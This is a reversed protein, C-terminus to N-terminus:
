LSMSRLMDEQGQSMNKGAVRVCLILDSSEVREDVSMNALHATGTKGAAAEFNSSLRQRFARLHEDLDRGEPWKPVKIRYLRKM